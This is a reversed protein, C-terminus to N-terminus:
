PKAGERHARDRLMQALKANLVPEVGANAVGQAESALDMLMAVRATRGTLERALNEQRQYHDVGAGAIMVAGYLPLTAALIARVDDEHRATARREIADPADDWSMPLDGYMARVGVAVLEAPVDDPSMPATTTLDTNETM